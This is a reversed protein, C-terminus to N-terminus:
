YTFFSAEIPTLVSHIFFPTTRGDAAFVMRMLGKFLVNQCGLISILRRNVQLAILVAKFIAKNVQKM